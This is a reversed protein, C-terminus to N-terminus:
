YRYKLLRKGYAEKKEANKEEWERCIKEYAEPLFIEKGIFFRKENSSFAKKFKVLSNEPSSDTGGGLHFEKVGLQHMECAAKWLLLNNAGFSSYDRDSGELHYHGYCGSYLFIAACILKGAKRVTGLFSNGTLKEKLKDYYAQEFFYFDDASLRKMTGNYLAVFEKYSAFDYETRYELLNKEAKRIMNRNKSSIQEKWIDEISRSTDMAITKRDYLTQISRNEQEDMVFRQNELLPHFRTFGCLYDMEKLYDYIGDFAKRNWEQDDTNSIPGGYGYATEFDWYMKIEGRIFPMLMINADDHCVVCLAKHNKDEYLCLYRKSFYIDKNKEPFGELLADWNETLEYQMKM